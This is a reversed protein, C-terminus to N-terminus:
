RLDGNSTEMKLITFGDTVKEEILKGRSLAWDKGFNKDWLPIRKTDSIIMYFIKEKGKSEPLTSYPFIQKGGLWTPTFGYKSQGYWYYLYAWLRNEYLPYTVSNIAFAQGDSNKYTYDVVDLQYSLYSSKDYFSDFLEYAKFPRTTVTYINSFGILFIIPIILILKLKSIVFATMLVIAGPLGLMFWPTDHYGLILTPVQSFLYLFLFLIGLKEDKTTKKSFLHYLSILIILIGLAIGLDQRHPLLNNSFNKFFDEFFLAVRNGFTIQAASNFTSSFNILSKVGAFGLKIETLILTSITLIFLFLSFFISKQTLLQPKFMILFIAGVLILYLHSLDTQISLGLSIATLTYGWAKKKLSAWLGLYFLPILFLSPTNITLWNSFKIYEFSFSAIFAALLAPLNKRFMLKSLLFLILAVSTNFLHNWYASMFLNGNSLLFPILNYYYYFVGHHLDPNGYVARGIIALNKEYAITYTYFQDEIQDYDFNMNAEKLDIQRLILGFIFICFLIIYILFASKPRIFKAVISM